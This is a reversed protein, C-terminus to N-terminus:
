WGTTVETVRKRGEKDWAWRVTVKTGAPLNCLKDSIGPEPVWKGNIQVWNPNLTVTGPKEVPRVVLQSAASSAVVGKLTGELASIVEISDIRSRNEANDMTWTVRVYEGSELAPLITRAPRAPLWSSGEQVWRPDFSLTANSETRVSLTWDKVSVVQGETVEAFAASSAAGLILVAFLLLMCKSFRGM